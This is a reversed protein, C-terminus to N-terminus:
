YFLLLLLSFCRYITSGGRVSVKYYHVIEELVSNEQAM